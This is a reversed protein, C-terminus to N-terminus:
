RRADASAEALLRVGQEIQAPTLLGYGLVLGPLMTPDRKSRYSSLPYVRVGVALAREEVLAESLDPPLTVLVTLGAAIGGPAAEPFWRGLAAVLADRRQRYIRRTRRLHRDLDGNSVFEACAAQAISATASDAARRRTIIPEVLEHPLVLWGLRLGPALSKSLTGCYIVRDPAVGQLAGVPHRDYRYEADYDDEIVYGDVDRAWAALAARRRPSLVAGTPM